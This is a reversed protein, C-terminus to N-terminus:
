ELLTSKYASTHSNHPVPYSRLCASMGCNITYVLVKLSTNDERQHVIICIDIVPLVSLLLNRIWHLKNLVVPFSNMINKACNQAIGRM